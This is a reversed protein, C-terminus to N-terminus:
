DMVSHIHGEGEILTGSFLSLSDERSPSTVMQLVVHLLFLVQSAYISKLKRAAMNLFYFSVTSILTLLTSKKTLM